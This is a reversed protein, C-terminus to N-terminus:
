QWLVASSDPATGPVLAAAAHSAPVCGSSFLYLAGVPCTCSVLLKHASAAAGSAAQAKTVAAAVAAALGSTHQEHLRELEAPSLLASVTLCLCGHRLAAQPRFLFLLLTAADTSHSGALAVARDMSSEPALM